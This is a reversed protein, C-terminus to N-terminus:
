KARITTLSVNHSIKDTWQVTVTITKMSNGVDEVIDYQRSFITGPVSGEIHQGSSLNSNGYSLQRLYELKDQALVTAQTIGNAFTGGKVSTMQMSAIGLLGIALIVLGIM